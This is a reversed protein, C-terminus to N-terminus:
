VQSGNFNSGLLLELERWLDESSLGGDGELIPLILKVGLGKAPNASTPQGVLIVESEKRATVPDLPFLPQALNPDCTPLRSPSDAM